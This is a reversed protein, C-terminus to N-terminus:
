GQGKVLIALNSRMMAQYSDYGKRGPEGLPDLTLVKAGTQRQVADIASQSFESEAYLVKLRYQRVAAIARVLRQPTVESGESTLMPMLHAVVKLGYRKALLDYANHFTVLQKTPVAALDDHYARDLAHLQGLLAKTNAAITAADDPFQKALAPGLKAVFAAALVPDMWLHPNRSPISALDDAPILRDMAYQKAQPAVRSAAEVIRRDLNRGVLVVAKASALALTASPTLVYDHPERGPPVLVTVKVGPGVIQQALSGLPFISAVVGGSTGSPVLRPTDGGSDGGCGALMLLGVVLLAFGTTRACNRRGHQNAKLVQSIHM